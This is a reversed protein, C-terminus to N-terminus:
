SRFQKKRSSVARVPLVLSCSLFPPLTPSFAAGHGRAELRLATSSGGAELNPATSTGGVELSPATSAGGTTSGRALGGLWNGARSGAPSSGRSGTGMEPVSAPLGGDVMGGWGGGAGRLRWGLGKIIASVRM